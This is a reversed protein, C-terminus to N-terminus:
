SSFYHSQVVLASTQTEIQLHKLCSTFILSVGSFQGTDSETERVFCRTGFLLNEKSLWSIEKIYLFCEYESDLM